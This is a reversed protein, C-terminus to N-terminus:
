EASKSSLVAIQYISMIKIEPKGRHLEITGVIGVNKGALKTIQDATIGSDAPVFGAFIQNPYERGFNIFATGLPSTTVSVVVGCVEVYKGVYRIAESDKIVRQEDAPSAILCLLLSLFVFIPRM